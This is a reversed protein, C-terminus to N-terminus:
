TNKYQCVSEVACRLPSKSYMECQLYSITYHSNGYSLNLYWTDGEAQSTSDIVLTYKLANGSPSLTACGPNQPSTSLHFRWPPISYQFLQKIVQELPLSSNCDLIRAVGVRGASAECEERKVGDSLGM